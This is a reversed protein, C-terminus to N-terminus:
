FFLIASSSTAELFFPRPMLSSGTDSSSVTVAARVFNEELNSLFLFSLRASILAAEIKGPEDPDEADPAFLSSSSALLLFIWAAVAELRNTPPNLGDDHDCLATEEPLCLLVQYQRFM